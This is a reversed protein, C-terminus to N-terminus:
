NMKSARFIAWIGTSSSFPFSAVSSLAQAFFFAVVSASFMLFAIPHFLQGCSLPQLACVLPDHTRPIAREIGRHEKLDLLVGTARRYARVAFPQEDIGLEHFAHLKLFETENGHVLCTVNEVVVGANQALPRFAKRILFPLNSQRQFEDSVVDCSRGPNPPGRSAVLDGFVVAQRFVHLRAPIQM